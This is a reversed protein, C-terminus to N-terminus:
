VTQGNSYSTGNYTWGAFTYGTKTFANTRLTCNSGYTCTTNSMTGSGGNADYKITYTNAVCAGGTSTSKGNHNYGTKCVPAATGGACTANNPCLTCDNDARPSTNAVGNYTMYYGANCETYKISNCVYGSGHACFM